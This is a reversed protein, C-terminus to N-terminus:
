KSRKRRLFAILLLGALCLGGFALALSLKDGTQPIPSPIKATTFPIGVDINAPLNNLTLAIQLPNGYEDRKLVNVCGTLTVNESRGALMLAVQATFSGDEQLHLPVAAANDAYAGHQSAPIGVSLHSVDVMWRDSASAYVIASPSM